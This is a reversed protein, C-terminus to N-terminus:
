SFTAVPRPPPIDPSTIQGAFRLSDGPIPFQCGSDTVAKLGFRFETATSEIGKLWELPKSSAPTKEPSQSSDNLDRAMECICCPEANTMAYVLQDIGGAKRAMDVWAYGQVLLPLVGSVVIALAM